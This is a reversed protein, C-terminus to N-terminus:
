FLGGGAPTGGTGGTTGTAGGAGTAAFPDFPAGPVTGFTGGPAPGFTGGGGGGFTGGAGQAGALTSHRQQYAKFEEVTKDDRRITGCLDTRVNCQTDACVHIARGYLQTLQVNRIQGEITSTGTSAHLPTSVLVAQGQQQQQRQQPFFQSFPNFQNGGGFSSYPNYPTAASPVQYPEGTAICYGDINGNRTVVMAFTGHLSDPSIVGTQAGAKVFVGHVRLNSNSEGGYPNQGGDFPSPGFPNRGLDRQEEITLYLHDGAKNTAHVTALRTGRQTSSSFSPFNSGPLGASPLGPLRSQTPFGINSFQGSTQPFGFGTNSQQFGFGTNPQGFTSPFSSTPSLGAGTNTFPFQQAKSSAVLLSLVLLHTFAM